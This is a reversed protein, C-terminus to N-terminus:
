GGRKLDVIVGKHVPKHHFVNSMHPITIQLHNVDKWELKASDMGPWHGKLVEDGLDPDSGPRVLVINDWSTVGFIGCDLSIGRAIWSRNPSEASIQNYGKSCEWDSWPNPESRPTLTHYAVLIAVITLVVLRARLMPTM